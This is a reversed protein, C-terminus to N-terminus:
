KNHEDKIFFLILVLLLSFLISKIGLIYNVTMFINSIIIMLLLGKRINDVFFSDKSIFYYYLSILIIMLELALGEMAVNNVFLYLLLVFILSLFFCFYANKSHYGGIYSRLYYFCIFFIMTPELFKLLFAVFFIIAIHIFKLILVKLAYEYEINEDEKIIEQHIMKRIIMSIM